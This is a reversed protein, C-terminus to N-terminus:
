YFAMVLGSVGSAGMPAHIDVHIAVQPGMAEEMAPGGQCKLLALM